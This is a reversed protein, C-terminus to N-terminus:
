AKPDIRLKVPQSFLNGPSRTWQQGEWQDMHLWVTHGDARAFKTYVTVFGQVWYEGAPLDRLSQIPHGFDNEDIIAAQGPRLDEVGRSFLPVGTPSAQQIPSRQASSERSIAVYVRGTVPESRAAAGFSIEFRVGDSREAAGAAVGVAIFAAAVFRRMM